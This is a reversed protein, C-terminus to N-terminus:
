PNFPLKCFSELIFTEHKTPKREKLEKMKGAAARGEASFFEM